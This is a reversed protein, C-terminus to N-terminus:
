KSCLLPQAGYSASQGMEKHEWYQETKELTETHHPKEEEQNGQLKRIM